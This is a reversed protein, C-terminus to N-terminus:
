NKFFGDFLKEDMGGLGFVNGIISNIM